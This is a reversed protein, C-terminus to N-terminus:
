VNCVDSFINLVTLVLFLLILVGFCLIAEFTASAYFQTDFRHKKKPKAGNAAVSFNYIITNRWIIVRVILPWVATPISMRLTQQMPFCAWPGDLWRGLPGSSLYMVIGLMSLLVLFPYRKAILDHKRKYLRLVFTCTVLLYGIVAFVAATIQVGPGDVPPVRASYYVPCFWDITINGESM